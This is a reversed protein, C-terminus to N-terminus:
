SMGGQLNYIEISPYFDKIVAIAKKSRTGSQCHVVTILSPNIENLRNELLSLPINKGGMHSLNYEIEERVDILQVEKQLLWQTLTERDIERATITCFDDYTGLYTINKNEPIAKFNFCQTENNLLNFSLLKGKLPMGIGTILKIVENAQWVGIIGPLIGLVGVQSCSLNADSPPEPFLCRYTPGDALNFVSVQGEFKYIAGYVLPKGLIVCADNLLYRTTFNDTGDVVLDYNRVLPLVNHKDVREEIAEIEISPNLSSLRKKAAVVKPTGLDEETYLVQRQLNSRQVKDDDVIGLYGIGAAALYLLAPCGLGGAGIVLVRASKLQQQAAEGFGALILHRSYREKEESSFM